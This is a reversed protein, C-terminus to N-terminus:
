ADPAHFLALSFYPQAAYTFRRIEVRTVKAQDKERWVSFGAVIFVGGWAPHFGVPAGKEIELIVEGGVRRVAKRM